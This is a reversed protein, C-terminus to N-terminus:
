SYSYGLRDNWVSNYNTNGGAYEIKTETGSVTIRMIRWSSESDATGPVAYGYYSVTASVDDIRLCKPSVQWTM